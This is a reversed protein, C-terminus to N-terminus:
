QYLESIVFKYKGSKEFLLDDVYDIKLDLEQGLLIKLDATLKSVEIKDLVEGKIKLISSQLTKQVFQFREIKKFATIPKVIEARHVAAGNFAYILDSKRGIIDKLIPLGRHCACPSEDYIALDGTRYRIFPFGHSALHTVVVEGLHGPPVVKGNEDIIEVIIDEATIHMNGMPCSHAIFGADRGGYGNAVVCGFAKQITQKLADDLVESTVFAVKIGLKNLPQNTQQSYKGIYGLISPYGFLMKPKYDKIFNIIKDMEQSSLNKAPILYSRMLKDRMNRLWGQRQCEIGSGWLVLEKDGMDVRWWRTARWKAAVDHAIRMKSVLLHLPEGTSGGTRYAILNKAHRHKIGEFNERILKKDLFPLTSLIELSRINNADLNAAVFVDRYYPSHLEAEKLLIHLRQLQRKKIQEVTEWQTKELQKLCQVTRHGKIKEHM